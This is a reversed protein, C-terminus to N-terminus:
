GPPCATVLGADVLGGLLDAVDRRLVEPEVEYEGLLTEVIESFTAGDALLQWARAGVDELGYYEDTALDLIVLEGAASRSLVHEPIAFTTAGDPESAPPM